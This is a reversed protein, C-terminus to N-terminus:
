SHCDAHAYGDAHAHGGLHLCGDADAYHRGHVCPFLCAHVYSGVHAYAHTYTDCHGDADASSGTFARGCTTVSNAHSYSDNRARRVGDTPSYKIDNHHALVLRYAHCPNYVM